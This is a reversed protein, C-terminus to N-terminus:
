MKNIWKDANNGSKQSLCKVKAKLSGIPLHERKMM